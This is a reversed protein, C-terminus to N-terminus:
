QRKKDLRQKIEVKKTQPIHASVGEQGKSDTTLRTSVKEQNTKDTEINDTTTNPITVTGRPSTGMNQYNTHDKVM